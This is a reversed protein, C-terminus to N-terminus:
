DVVCEVTLESICTPDIQTILDTLESVFYGICLPPFIFNLAINRSALDRSFFAPKALVFITIITAKKKEATRTNRTRSRAEVTQFHGSETNKTSVLLFASEPSSIPVKVAVACLNSIGHEQYQGFSFRVRPVLNSCRM